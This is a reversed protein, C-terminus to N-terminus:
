REKGTLESGEGPAPAAPPPPSAPVYGRCTCTQAGDEVTCERRDLHRDAPHGCCACATTEAVAPAPVWQDCNLCSVETEALRSCHHPPALTAKCHPPVATAPAPTAARAARLGATDAERDRRELEARAAALAFEAVEVRQRLARCKRLQRATRSRWRLAAKHEEIMAHVIAHEGPNLLEEGDQLSPVVLARGVERALERLGEEWANREQTLTDIRRQMAAAGAEHARHAREAEEARRTAAVARDEVARVRAIETGLACEAEARAGESASLQARLEQIVGEARDLSARLSEANAEGAAAVESLRRELHAIRGQLDHVPVPHEGMANENM